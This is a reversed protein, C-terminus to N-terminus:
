WGPYRTWWEQDPRFLAFLDDALTQIEDRLELQELWAPPIASVGLLAGLLNGAIAGREPCAAVAVTKWDFAVRDRAASATECLRCRRSRPAIM